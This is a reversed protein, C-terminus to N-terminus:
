TQERAKRSFHIVDALIDSGYQYAIGYKRDHLAQLVIDAPRAKVSESNPIFFSRVEMWSAAVRAAGAIHPITPFHLYVETAGSEFEKDIRDIVGELPVNILAEDDTLEVVGRIIKEANGKQRQEAM